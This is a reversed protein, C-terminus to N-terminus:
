TPPSWRTTSSRRRSSRTTAPPSRSGTTRSSRAPRGARAGAGRATEAEGVLVEDGGAYAALRLRGTPLGVDLAEQGEEEGAPRPREAAIAVLEGDLSGLEALPVERATVAIEESPRELPAAEEGEGLAEELRRLPDRLEFERFVERLRSRDPESHSSRTSTSVSM